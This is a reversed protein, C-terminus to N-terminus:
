GVGGIGTLFILQLKNRSFRSQLVLIGNPQREETQAPRKNYSIQTANESRVLRTNNKGAWALTLTAFEDGANNATAALSGSAPRYKCSITMLSIALLSPVIGTVLLVINFKSIM